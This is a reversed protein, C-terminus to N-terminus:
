TDPARPLFLPFSNGQRLTTSQGDARRIRSIPWIDSLSSILRLIIDLYRSTKATTFDHDHDRFYLGAGKDAYVQSALLVVLEPRDKTKSYLIRGPQKLTMIVEPVCVHQAHPYLTCPGATSAAQQALTLSLHTWFRYKTQGLARPWSQSRAACYWHLTLM